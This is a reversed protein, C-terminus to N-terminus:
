SRMFDNICGSLRQGGVDAVVLTGPRRTDYIPVSYDHTTRAEGLLETGDALELRFARRPGRPDIDFSAIPTIVGDRRAYGTARLPGRTAVFALREGRLTVYTFPRLFRPQEQHQEHWQGFGEFQVDTGEVEASVRVRGLLEIRGPVTTGSASLPEFTAVLHIERDGPGHGPHADLHAMASISVSAGAPSARSGARTMSMDVERGLRYVIDEGDVKTVDSGCPLYHDTYAFVEGPLFVHAWLWGTQETPYRCLRVVFGTEGDETVCDLYVSESWLTEDKLHDIGPM